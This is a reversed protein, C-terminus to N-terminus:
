KQTKRTEEKQKANDRNKVNQQKKSQKNRKIREAQLNKNANETEVELGVARHQKVLLESLTEQTQHHFWANTIFRLMQRQFPPFCTHFHIRHHTRNGRSEVINKSLCGVLYDELFFPVMEQVCGQGAFIPLIQGDRVGLSLVRMSVFRTSFIPLM